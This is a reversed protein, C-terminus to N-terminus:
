RSGLGDFSNLSTVEWGVFLEVGVEEIELLVREHIGLVEGVISFSEDVVDSIDQLRGSGHNLLLVAILDELVEDSPRVIDTKSGRDRGRTVVSASCSARGKNETSIRTKKQDGNRVSRQRSV